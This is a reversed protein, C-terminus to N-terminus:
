ALINNMNVLDVLKVLNLVQNQSRKKLVLMKPKQVDFANTEVSSVPTELDLDLDLNFLDEIYAGSLYLEHINLIVIKKGKSVVMVPLWEKLCRSFTMKAEFNLNQRHLLEEIILADTDQLITACDILEHIKLPGTVKVANILNVLADDWGLNLDNLAQIM